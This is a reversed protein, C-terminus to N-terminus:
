GYPHFVPQPLCPKLFLQLRCPWSARHTQAPVEGRKLHPTHLGQESSESQQAEPDRWNPTFSYLAAVLLNPKNQKLYSWPCFGDFEDDPIPIYGQSKRAYFQQSELSARPSCPPVGTIPSPWVSVKGLAFLSSPILDWTVHMSDCPTQAASALGSGRQRGLCAPM